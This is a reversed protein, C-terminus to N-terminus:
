FCPSYVLVAMLIWLALPIIGKEMMRTPLMEWFCLDLSGQSYDAPTFAWSKLTGAMFIFFCEGAGGRDNGLSTSGVHKVLLFPSPPLDGFGVWNSMPLRGTLKM